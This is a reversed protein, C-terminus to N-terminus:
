DADIVYATAECCLRVVKLVPKKWQKKTKANKMFPRVSLTHSLSRHEDVTPKEIGGTRFTNPLGLEVLGQDM